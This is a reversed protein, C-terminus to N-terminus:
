KREVIIDLNKIKNMLSQVDRFMISSGDFIYGFDNWGMTIPRVLSKRPFAFPRVRVQHLGRYKRM